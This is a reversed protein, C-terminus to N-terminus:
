QVLGNDKESGFCRIMWKVEVGICRKLFRREKKREKLFKAARYRTPFARVATQTTIKAEKTSTACVEWVIWKQM